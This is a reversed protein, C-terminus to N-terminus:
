SEKMTLRGWIADPATPRFLVEMGLGWLLTALAGAVLSAIWLNSLWRRLFWGSGAGLSVVITVPVVTHM